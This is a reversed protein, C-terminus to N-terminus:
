QWYPQVNYYRFSEERIKGDIENGPPVEAAWSGPAAAVWGVVLLLWGRRGTQRM